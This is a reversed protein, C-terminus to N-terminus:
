RSVVLKYMEAAALLWAGTGFEHENGAEVVTGPQPDAAGGQCYGVIGGPQLAEESLYRWAQFLTSQYEEADLVGTRIGYALAFAMLATGSTEYGPAESPDLISRTWYGESQQAKKLAASLTRLKAELRPRAWHEPPLSALTRAYAAIAWGNGRSWFDKKGAATLHKSPLKSDDRYFLGAEGDYLLNETHDLCAAAKTMYIPDGELSDLQACVPMAMFLADVWFWCDEGGKETAWERMTGRAFDASGAAVVGRRELTIYASFCAEYDPKMWPYGAAMGPQWEYNMNSAWRASYGNMRHALEPLTDSVAEAAWLLGAHFVGNNWMVDTEASQREMWSTAVAELLGLPRAVDAPLSLRVEPRVDPAEEEGDDDCSLLLALSVAALLGIRM